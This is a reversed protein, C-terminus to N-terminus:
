GPRGLMHINSDLGVHVHVPVIYGFSKIHRVIGTGFVHDIPIGRDALFAMGATSRSRPLRLVCSAGREKEAVEKQM